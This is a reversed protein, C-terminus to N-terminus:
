FLCYALLRMGTLLLSVGLITKLTKGKIRKALLSGVQSGIITGVSLPLAFEILINGLLGHVIVGSIKTITMGFMATAAAVHPPLGMIIMFSADVTGGGLGFLGTIMGSLLSGIQSLALDRKSLSYTFVRGSSDAIKRHWVAKSEHTKVEKLGNNWIFMRLSLIILLLGLLLALLSSSLLESIYAGVIVGPIDMIDFLLGIKYDVRRQRVYNITASTVGFLLAVITSAAANKTPMKFLILLAPVIFSGGALGAMVSPITATLGVMFILFAEIVNM